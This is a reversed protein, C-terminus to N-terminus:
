AAQIENLSHVYALVHAGLMEAFTFFIREGKELRNIVDLKEEIGATKRRNKLKM